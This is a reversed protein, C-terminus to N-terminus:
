AQKWRTGEPGDELVIGQALLKDRIVDAQAYDKAKKAQNRQEILAEIAAVDVDSSQFWTESDSQVIGLFETMAMFTAQLQSVNEGKDLGKNINRCVEFTHALAEPTNFDDNMARTFSQPLEARTESSLGQIRRKTEYL